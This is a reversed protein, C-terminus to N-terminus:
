AEHIVFPFLDMAKTPQICTGCFPTVLPAASNDTVRIPTPWYAIALAPDGFCSLPKTQAQATSTSQTTPLPGSRKASARSAPAVVVSKGHVRCNYSKPPRTSALEGGICSCSCCCRTISLRGCAASLRGWGAWQKKHRIGKGIMRYRRQGAHIIDLGASATSLSSFLLSFRLLRSPLNCKLHLDFHDSPWLICRQSCPKCRSDDPPAPEQLVCGLPNVPTSIILHSRQTAHRM